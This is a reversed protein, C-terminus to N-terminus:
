ATAPADVPDLHQICNPRPSAASQRAGFAELHADDYADLAEASRCGTRGARKLLAAWGTPTAAGDAKRREALAKGEPTLGYLYLGSLSCTRWYARGAALLPLLCDTVTSAKAPDTHYEGIRAGRRYPTREGTLTRESVLGGPNWRAKAPAHHLFDMLPLADELGPLGCLERALAEGEPSLRCRKGGDATRLLGLGALQDRSRTYSKRSAGDEGPNRWPLLDGAAVDQRTQLDAQWAPGDLTNPEITGDLQGLLYGFLAKQKATPTM